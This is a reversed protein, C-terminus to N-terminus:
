PSTRLASIPTPTTSPCPGSRRIGRGRDGRRWVQRGPPGGRIDAADGHLRRRHGPRSRRYAAFDLPVSRRTGTSSANMTLAAGFSSAVKLRSDFLDVAALNACGVLRAKILHCLGLPGVGVVAVSEAFQGGGLRGAFARASDLGHTVAMIETLVAVEDPLEDPVRFLPTRPLLYMYESWGGFLHPPDASHLSNGYDELHECFYYPFSNRCYHCNGCPVNAAPVIRDGVRLPMGESDLVSDACGIAAIEGM